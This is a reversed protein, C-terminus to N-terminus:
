AKESPTKATKAASRAAPKRTAKVPAVPEGTGRKVAKALSKAQMALMSTVSGGAADVVTVAEDAAVAAPAPVSVSAEVVAPAAALVATNVTASEPGGVVRVGQLCGLAPTARGQKSAIEAKLRAVEDDTSAPPAPPTPMAGPLLRLRAYCEDQWSQVFRLSINIFWWPSQAWLSFSEFPTVVKM